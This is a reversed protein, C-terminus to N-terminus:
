IMVLSTGVIFQVEVELITSNKCNGGLDRCWRCEETREYTNCGGKLYPNGGLLQEGCMWTDVATGNYVSSSFLWRQSLWIQLLDTSFKRKEPHNSDCCTIQDPNTLTWVLSIPIFPSDRVSVNGQDYSTQDVLSAFGCGRDEEESRTLNIKYFRVRHPITTQCCGMGFCNTRNSPTGNDCASSCRTIVSGNNAM